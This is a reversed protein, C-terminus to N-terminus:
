ASAEPLHLLSGRQCRPSPCGPLPFSCPLPGSSSLSSPALRALTILLLSALAAPRSLDPFLAFHSVAYCLTEPWQSSRQKWLVGLESIFGRGGSGARSAIDPREVEDTGAGWGLSCM